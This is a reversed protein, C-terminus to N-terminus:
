NTGPISVKVVSDIQDEAGGLARMLEMVYPVSTINSGVCPRGDKGITILIAGEIFKSTEIQKALLVMLDNHEKAHAPVSM